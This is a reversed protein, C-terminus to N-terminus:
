NYIFNNFKSNLSNAVLAMTVSNRTVSDILYPNLGRTEFSHVNLKMLQYLPFNKFFINNSITPVEFSYSSNLASNGKFDLIQVKLYDTLAKLIRWDNKIKDSLPNVAIKTTQFRGEINRFTGIKEYYSLSPLLFGAGFFFNSDYHSGQHILLGIVKASFKVSVAGIVYFFNNLFIKKSYFWKFSYNLGIYFANSLSVSPLMVNLSVNKVGILFKSLIVRFSNVLNMFDFRSYAFQGFIVAMSAIKVISRVVKHKGELIQILPSTTNGLNYVYYNLNSLCGIGFIKLKGQNVLNKLRINLVPTELRSNFGVFFCFDLSPFLNFPITFSFYNILDVNMFKHEGGLFLSQSQGLNSAFKDLILFTEFDVPSGTIVNLNLSKQKFLFSISELISLWSKSVLKDEKIFSSLYAYHVLPNLLRQRQNGDYAFRARDSIWELNIDYNIRPLVRMITNGRVNIKVNACEPDLVDISEISKLEWSRASFAYPKSTLAGM